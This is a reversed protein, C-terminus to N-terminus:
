KSTKEIHGAVILDESAAFIFDTFFRAHAAQQKADLAGVNKTGLLQDLFYLTQQSFDQRYDEAVFHGLFGYADDLRKALPADAVFACM